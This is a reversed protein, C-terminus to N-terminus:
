GAIPYEDVFAALREAMARPQEVHLLHTAGPLTYGEAHPLWALLLERREAFVPHSREGVVALVPRAVRSADAEGFSWQAVARLQQGFFTDADAVAQEFAGPLARELPARYDPGCVGRM